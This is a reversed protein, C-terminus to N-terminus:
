VTDEKSPMLIGNQMYVVEDMWYLSDAKHAIAIVTRDKCLSAIAGSVLKETAADLHASIEDLLVLGPNRLALRILTILQAEGSSLSNEGMELDTDLGNSFKGFWDSLNLQNIATVINQDTYRTDHLIINDRLSGHILQIRQTCYAVHKRLSNTDIDSLELENLRISGHEYENLGAILAALTSKGCGTEGMIGLHKGAPISLTVGRLVDAGSKYAFSLDKISLAIAGEPLIFESKVLKVPTNLLEQTRL